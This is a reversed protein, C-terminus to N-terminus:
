LVQNVEEAEDKALIAEARQASATEFLHKVIRKEFGYASIMKTKWRLHASIEFPAIVLRKLGPFNTSTKDGAGGRFRLGALYYISEADPNVPNSLTIKSWGEMDTPPKFGTQVAEDFLKTGPYAAYVFFSIRAKSDTKKIWEALEMSAHLEEKTETPTNCMFSYFGSVQKTKSLIRTCNKIDEVGKRYDKGVVDRLVRESGSEIGLLVGTCGNDDLIQAMENDIYDCRLSTHWNLGYKKLVAGVGRVRNKNASINDDAVSLFSFSLESALIGIEKDLKELSMARWINRNYVTNYCFRCRHPCGRSSPYFLDNLKASYKFYKKNKETMPFPWKEPDLFPREENHVIQGDKKFCIGKVKKFDQKGKIESVLELLTQEGEGVVAFDILDGPENLCQDPLLSAHVGGLITPINKDYEKVSQLIKKTFHLQSGTMSSIGVCAPNKSKIVDIVKQEPDFRTDVYEVEFGNNELMAGPYFISLCASKTPSDLSARPFVLLCDLM